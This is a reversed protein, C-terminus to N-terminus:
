SCVLTFMVLGPVDIHVRGVLVAFCLDLNLMGSYMLALLAPMVIFVHQVDPLAACM